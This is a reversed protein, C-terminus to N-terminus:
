NVMVHIDLILASLRCPQCLIVAWTAAIKHSPTRARLGFRQGHRGHM